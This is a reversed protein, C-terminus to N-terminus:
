AARPPSLLGYERRVKEPDVRWCIEPECGLLILLEELDFIAYAQGAIVLVKNGDHWILRQRRIGQEALDQGEHTRYANVLNFTLITLYVHGRVADATKKPFALLNFGQKLERFLCNEILSRLDYYDFIVLPDHVSLSTLFVKEKGAAATEGNYSQILLANIPNPEFDKRNIKKQHKANGYQDYSILGRIGRLKVEGQQDEDGPRQAYFVYDDDPRESSLSRADQAIHMNSKAPVVFDIHLEHKLQWLAEGALFGRDILLVKLREKGLNRRAQKVLELTFNSDHPNIPVVKVAVVQRLKVEYLALLKFGYLTEEVEILKGQSKKRKTITRSGAGEYRKTTPLDTSDLAFIGQSNDFFGREALRRVAGNFVYELEETTLKEVADALTNKHMPKQSDKRGRRCFGSALQDSSYGILRMLALDKFLREAVQNMSAIGLLIKIEYTVLLLSLDFMQRYFRKGDVGLLEYMGLENMFVLFREAFGWGAHSLMAVEGDILRSAVEKQNHTLHKYLNYRRKGQRRKALRQQKKQEFHKRKQERRTKSSM